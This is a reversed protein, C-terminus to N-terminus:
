RPPQGNQRCLSSRPIRLEAHPIINPPKTTQLFSRLSIRPNAAGVTNFHILYASSLWRRTQWRERGSHCGGTWTGRIPRPARRANRAVAEAEELLHIVNQGDNRCPQPLVQGHIPESRFRPKIPVTRLRCKSFPSRAM